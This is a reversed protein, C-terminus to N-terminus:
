ASRGILRTPVVAFAGDGILAQVALMAAWVAPYEWGGGANNFFFGKAGHVTVITGLILPIMAVAVLRAQIGLVLAVGGTFEVAMTLYALAEPLGLSAFFVVTGAPGFVFLKLGLHALFLAGLVIRLLAAGYPATSPNPSHM